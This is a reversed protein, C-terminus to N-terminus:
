NRPLRFVQLNKESLGPIAAIHWNDPSTAVCQVYYTDTTPLALVRSKSKIDWVNVSGRGGTVLKTGDPTFAGSWQIERDELIGLDENTLVDWLHINYDEGCALMRGDHSFAAFQGSNRSLPRVAAKETKFNITLLNTGDTAWGTRGDPSISCTKVDRRLGDFTAIAKGNDIQWYRLKKEEGSLAYKGDASIVICRVGKAHGAFQGAPELEGSKNVNWVNILGRYGGALLKKGDPTFAMAEVQGLLELKELSNKITGASVDCLSISSNMKGVALLGGNPSFALSKVSAGVNSFVRAEGPPDDPKEGKLKVLPVSGPITPEEPKDKTVTTGTQTEIYALDEDSLKDLPVALYSGDAKELVVKGNKVAVFEAEITFKGNSSTWERLADSALASGAILLALM